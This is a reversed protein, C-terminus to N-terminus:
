QRDEKGKLYRSHRKRGWWVLLVATLLSLGAGAKFGEPTYKLEVERKGEPIIVGTYSHHAPFVEAEKGDIFVEWGKSFPISLFLVSDKEATLHGNIRNNKVTIDKLSNQKHTEIQQEYESYESSLVKIDKLLFKGPQIVVKISKSDSDKGMRFLVKNITDKYAYQSSVYQNNRMSKELKFGLGKDNLVNITMGENKTYPVFDIFVKLDSLRHEEIPLEIEISVDSQVLTGEEEKSV